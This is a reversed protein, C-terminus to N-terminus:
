WRGAWVAYGFYQAASPTTVADGTFGYKPHSEAYERTIATFKEAETDAEASCEGAAYCRAVLGSM